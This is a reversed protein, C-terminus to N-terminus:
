QIQVHTSSNQLILILILDNSANGIAGMEEVLVMEITLTTVALITFYHM